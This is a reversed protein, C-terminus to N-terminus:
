FLEIDSFPSAGWIMLELNQIDSGAPSYEFDVRSLLNGSDAFVSYSELNGNGDYVSDLRDGLRTTASTIRGIDDTTFNLAQGSSAASTLRGGSYTLMIGARPESSGSSQDIRILQRNANYIFTQSFVPTEDEAILGATNFREVRTILGAGNYFVRNTQNFNPRVSVAVRNFQDLTFEGLMITGVALQISNQELNYRYVATNGDDDTLSDVRFGNSYEPALVGTDPGFDFAEEVNSSSQNTDSPAETSEQSDGSSQSSSSGSDGGGCSTILVILTLFGLKKTNM